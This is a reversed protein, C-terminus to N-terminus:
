GLRGPSLQDILRDSQGAAVQAFRQALAPVIALPNSFGSFVQIGTLGPIEGILPLQDRSFAILCHHWTGPLNGITPLLHGVQARLAAESLGPDVATQPDTLTRSTQGIRIRGDRMQIAGADLIPPAPEYGPEDWLEEMDPQTADAELQFRQTAAPMIMTRLRIDLPPTEIIEAHTFYQPVRIHAAQLMQRTIGGTCILVQAGQFDGISTTVGTIRRDHKLFGTVTAVAFQGGGRQFAQCYAHSTAQPEVHGQKVLLAGAIAAPNLLPELDCAAAASILQPPIAFRAYNAVIAEVDADPAITLLLTLERFETDGALEASLHRHRDLGEVCLQRTLATSGAWYAIGGYGFRTAGQLPQHQELLLTSLGQKALEYSVAAGTIGAGVVIWDFTKM